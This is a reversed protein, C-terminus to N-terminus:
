VPHLNNYLQLQASIFDSKYRKERIYQSITKGTEKKFVTSLYVSSVNLQKALASLSLEASLDSDIATVASKVLPSYSSAKERVLRCYDRFMETMLENGQEVSTFLEIKLAFDSSIKDLHIPHVGGREAAKRLLTNM